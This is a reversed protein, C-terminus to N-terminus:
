ASGWLATFQDQYGEPGEYEEVPTPINDTTWIEIPLVEHVGPRDGPRLELRVMADVAAWASEPRPLPIWAFSTGDALSQLQEPNPVDGLIKVDEM